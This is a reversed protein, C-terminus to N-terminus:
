VHKGLGSADVYPVTIVPDEQDTNFVSYYDGLYERLRNSSHAPVHTFSGNQLVVNLMCISSDPFSPLELM